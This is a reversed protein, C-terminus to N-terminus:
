EYKMIRWLVSPIYLLISYIKSPTNKLISKKNSICISNVNIITKIRNKIKISTKYKKLFEYRLKFLLMSTNFNRKWNNYINKTLGDEQYESYYISNDNIYLLKGKKSLNIYLIEESAFNEGKIEPFYNNKLVETKLLIGTEINKNIMYKFDPIDLKINNLNINNYKKEIGNRPFFVGLTKDDQEINSGKIYNYLKEVAQKDLIDDSDVCIFYETKCERVAKNHAIYKGSNEQYIYEIEIENQEKLLGIYKDTEDNSGDDIILWIFNKNIQQRLSNYLRALLDKRNFTPTFITIKNKM